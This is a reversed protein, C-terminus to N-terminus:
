QVQRADAEEKVTHDHVHSPFDILEVQEHCVPCECAHEDAHCSICREGAWWADPVRYDCITCHKWNEACSPCLTEESLHPLSHASVEEDVWILDGCYTCNYLDEACDACCEEGNEFAVFGDADRDRDCLNCYQTSGACYECLSDEESAPDGCVRCEYRGSVEGDTQNLVVAEICPEYSYLRNHSIDLYRFTDMYPYWVFDSTTLQVTTALDYTVGHQNFVGYTTRWIWGQDQAYDQFRSITIDSGYVRDMVIGNFSTWVLARGVLKDDQDTLILMQCVDPNRVYIDLYKQCKEYRMCSANLHGTNEAYRDEHYWYRIAEGNVLKWELGGSSSQACLNVHFLEFDKDTLHGLVEAPLMQRALRAPRAEQRGERQWRGNPQIPQTIKNGNADTRNSPWYTLKDGRLAIHDAVDNTAFTLLWLAVKDQKNTALTQLAARLTGSYTVM